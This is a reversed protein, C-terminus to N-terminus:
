KVEKTSSYQKILNVEIELHNVGEKLHFNERKLIEQGKKSENNTSSLDEIIM